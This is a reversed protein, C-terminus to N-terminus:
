ISRVVGWGDLAEKPPGGVSGPGWQARRTGLDVTGDNRTLGGSLEDSPLSPSGQANHHQSRAHSVREMPRKRLETISAARFVHDTPAM